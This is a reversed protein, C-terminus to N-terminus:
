RKPNLEELFEWHISHYSLHSYSPTLSPAFSTLSLLSGTVRGRLGSQQNHAVCHHPYGVKIQEPPRTPHRPIPGPLVLSPPYNEWHRFRQLIRTRLGAHALQTHGLAHTHTHSPIPHSPNPRPFPPLHKNLNRRGNKPGGFWAAPKQKSYILGVLVGYSVKICTLTPVSPLYLISAPYLSMAHWPM